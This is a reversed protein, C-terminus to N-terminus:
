VTVDSRFDIWHFYFCAFVFFLLLLLISVSFVFNDLHSREGHAFPMSTPYVLVPLLVSFLLRQQAVGPSTVAETRQNEAENEELKEIFNQNKILFSQCTVSQQVCALTICWAM